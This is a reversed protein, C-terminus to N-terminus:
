RNTMYVAFSSSSGRLAFTGPMRGSIFYRSGEHWGILVSGGAEGISQIRARHDSKLTQVPVKAATEGAM